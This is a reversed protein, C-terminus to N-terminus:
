CGVPAALVLCFFSEDHLLLPKSECWTNQGRNSTRHFVSRELYSFFDGKSPMQKRNVDQVAMVQLGVM